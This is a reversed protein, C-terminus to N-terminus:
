DNVVVSFVANWFGDIWKSDWVQVGCSSCFPTTAATGCNGCYKMIQKESATTGGPSQVSSTYTPAPTPPSQPYYYTPQPAQQSSINTSPTNGAMGAGAPATNVHVAVTTTSSRRRQACWVFLLIWFIVKLIGGIVCCAVGGYFMSNNSNCDDDFNDLCDNDYAGFLAGGVVFFVISGLLFGIPWWRSMSSTNSTTTITQVNPPPYAM